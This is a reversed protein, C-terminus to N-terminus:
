ENKSKKDKRQEKKDKFHYKFRKEKYKSVDLPITFNNQKLRLGCEPCHIDWDTVEAGCAPCRNKDHLWKIQEDTFGERELPDFAQYFPSKKIVKQVYTDAFLLNLFYFVISFIISFWLFGSFGFSSFFAIFVILAITIKILQIIHIEYHINIDEEKEIFLDVEYQFNIFANNTRFHIKGADFDFDDFGSKHIYGALANIADNIEVNESDPVIIKSKYSYPLSM